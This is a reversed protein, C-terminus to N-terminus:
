ILSYVYLSSGDEVKVFRYAREGKPTEYLFINSKTTIALLQGGAKGKRNEDSWTAFGVVSMGVLRSGPVALPVFDTAWRLPLDEVMDWGSEDSNKRSLHSGFESLHPSKAFNPSTSSSPTLFTHYSSSPEPPIHNPPSEILSKLGRAISGQPRHKKSPTPPTQWSSMKYLDLPKTTGQSRM